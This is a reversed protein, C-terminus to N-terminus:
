EGVSTLALLKELGSIELTKKSKYTKGIRHLYDNLYSSYSSRIQVLKTITIRPLGKEEEHIEPVTSFKTQQNPTSLNPLM